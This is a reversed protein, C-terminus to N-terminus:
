AAAAIPPLVLSISHVDGARVRAGDICDLVTDPPLERMYRAAETIGDAVPATLVHDETATIHIRIPRM